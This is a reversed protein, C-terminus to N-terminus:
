SPRIISYCLPLLLSPTPSLNFPSSIFTSYPSSFSLSFTIPHIYFFSHSPVIYITCTHRLLILYTFLFIFHFLTNGKRGRFERVEDEGGGVVETETGTKTETEVAGDM